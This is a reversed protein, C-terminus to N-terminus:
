GDDNKLHRSIHFIFALNTEISRRLSASLFADSRRHTERAQIYHMYRMHTERRFTLDIFM